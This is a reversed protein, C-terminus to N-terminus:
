SVRSITPDHTPLVRTDGMPGEASGPPATPPLDLLAPPTVDLLTAPSFWGDCQGWAGEGLCTGKGSLGLGSVGVVRRSVPCVGEISMGGRGSVGWLVVGEGLYEGIGPMDREQVRGEVLCAGPCAGEAFYAGLELCARQSM